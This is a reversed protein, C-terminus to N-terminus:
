RGAPSSGGRWAAAFAELLDETAGIAILHTYHKDFATTTVSALETEFRALWEQRTMARGRKVALTWARSARTRIALVRMHGIDCDVIRGPAHRRLGCRIRSGRWVGRFSVAKSETERVRQELQEVRTELAAIRGDRDALQEKLVPALGRVLVRLDDITM